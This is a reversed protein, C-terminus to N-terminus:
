EYRLAEIPDLNAAKYAPYIGFVLGIMLSIVAATLTWYLSMSAPLSQGLVLRIIGTLMGGFLIGIIGGFLALTMAELTFQWLINRKTAGMAKRVGIERTRETVSVLMINMVGVGGVILGVSSVAFMFIFIGGTLQDWLEKIKDARFIAFNDPQNSKLHRDRRLVERMEEMVLPMTEASDAKVSIWNAKLEPHMKKFTRYPLIAINDEPNKGGFPNGSKRPEAIAIVTFLEGEINVEKGIGSEDGFLEQAADSGLMVVNRAQLDDQETFNRSNPLPKFDLDYVDKVTTLDGELITNQAKKGNYKVAVSGVGFQPNFWRIGATAAVVHPLTEMNKADDYSLEKRQLMEPTPRTFTIVDLHFAWIINSGMSTVSESIRSNFGNVVSSILIVTSVGIVIGLVTLGSRLKNTRITDMAMRVVEGFIGQGQLEAM